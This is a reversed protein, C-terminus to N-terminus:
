RPRCSKHCCGWIITFEYILKSWGKKWGLFGGLRQSITRSEMIEACEPNPDSKDNTCSLVFNFTPGPSVQLLSRRFHYDRSGPLGQLSFGRGRQRIPRALGCSWPM